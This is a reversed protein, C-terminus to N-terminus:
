RFYFITRPARRDRLAERIDVANANFSWVNISRTCTAYLTPFSSTQDPEVKDKVRRKEGLEADVRLCHERVREDYGVTIGMGVAATIRASACRRLHIRHRVASCYSGRPHESHKSPENLNHLRPEARAVCRPM